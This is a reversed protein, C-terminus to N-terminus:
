AYIRVIRAPRTFPEFSNAHDVCRDHVQSFRLDGKDIMEAAKRAKILWCQRAARGIDYLVTEAGAVGANYRDSGACEWELMTDSQGDIFSEGFVRPWDTQSVSGGSTGPNCSVYAFGNRVPPVVEVGAPYFTNAAWVSAARARDVELEVQGQTLTPTAQPQVRDLVARVAVTRESNDSLDSIVELTIYGDNPYSLRKGASTTEVQGQYTGVADKDESTWDYTIKGVILTHTGSGADTIDVPVGGQAESLKLTNTTVNVAYYVRAASLGGPLAGSSKLTFDQGEAVGHANSTLKDLTPDATFTPDTAIQAAANIKVEGTLVNVMRLNATFGSLDVPGLSDRAILVLSPLRDNQKTSFYNDAM